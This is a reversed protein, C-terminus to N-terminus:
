KQGEPIFFLGSVQHKENFVAKMQLNVKEFRCLVYVVNYGQIKEEHIEGYERYKGCQKCIDEWVSKLKDEPLAKRMTEDFGSVIAQYEGGQFHTIMSKALEQDKGQQADLFTNFGLLILLMLTFKM